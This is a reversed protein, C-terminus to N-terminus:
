RHKSTLVKILTTKKPVCTKRTEKESRAYSKEKKSSNFSELHHLYIRNLQGILTDYKELLSFRDFLFM